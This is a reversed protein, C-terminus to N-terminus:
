EQAPTLDRTRQQVRQLEAQPECAPDGDKTLFAAIDAAVLDVALCRIALRQREDTFAGRLALMEVIGVQRSFVAAELTTARLVSSSIIVPDVEHVRTPDEGADLYRMLSAAHAIGASEASNHPTVGPFLTGGARETVVIALVVVLALVPPGALAARALPLRISM